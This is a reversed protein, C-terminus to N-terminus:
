HCMLVPLPAQDLVHRTFGGFVWERLRNHGYGGMVLLKAGSATATRLLRDAPPLEDAAVRQTEVQLHHRQLLTVLREVSERDAADAEAVTVIVVQKAADLFPMAAGVARAAERTPKWAIAVKDAVLPVPGPIYLPRGSDILAAELLDDMTSDDDAPRAVVCLESTQAYRALWAARDGTETFWRASVAQLAPKAATGVTLHERKCFQDVRAKAAAELESASREMEAILEPSIAVTALDGFSAAVRTVDERVHLFDLHAGLQRAVGLAAPLAVDDAKTGSTPVLITKIM